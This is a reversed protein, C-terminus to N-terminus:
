NGWNEKLRDYVTLGEPEINLVHSFQECVREYHSGEWFVKGCQACCFFMDVKSFMTEPVTETQISASTSSVTVTDWNVGYRQWRSDPQKLDKKQKETKCTGTAEETNIPGNSAEAIGLVSCNAIPRMDGEGQTSGKFPESVGSGNSETDSVSDGPGKIILEVKRKALLAMDDAPIKLYVDGNCVQFSYSIM